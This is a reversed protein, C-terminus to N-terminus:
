LKPTKTRHYSNTNAICTQVLSQDVVPAKVICYSARSSLPWSPISQKTLLTRCRMGNSTVLRVTQRCLVNSEALLSGRWIRVSRQRSARSARLFMTHYRQKIFMDPVPDMHYKYFATCQQPLGDWCLWRLPLARVSGQHPVSQL